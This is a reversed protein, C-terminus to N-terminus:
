AEPSRQSWGSLVNERAEAGAVLLGLNSELPPEEVTFAQVIEGARGDSGLGDGGNKMELLLELRAPDLEDDHRSGHLWRDSRLV